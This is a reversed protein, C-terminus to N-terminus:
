RTSRACREFRGVSFGVLWAAALYSFVLVIWLFAQGDPQSPRIDIPNLNIALHIFFAGWISGSKIAYRLLLLGLLLFNLIIMWRDWISMGSILADSSLSKSDILHGFAWLASNLLYSQFGLLYLGLRGAEEFFNVFPTTWQVGRSLSASYMLGRFVSDFILVLFIVPIITRGPLSFYQRYKKHNIALYGAGVIFFLLAPLRVFANSGFFHLAIANYAIVIAAIFYIYYIM